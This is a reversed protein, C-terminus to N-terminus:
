AVAGLGLVQYVEVPEGSVKEALSGAPEARVMAEVNRYTRGSILIQGPQALSQLRAALNVSEGVVAYEMREDTGVTGAVVEGASLGIGVAVPDRGERVRRASLEAVGAQVALATRVARVSHDPHFIPAGFIAMVGDGLFRDLTGDHKFTTDIMLTYYENLLLVVEEPSLREALTTFGRLDCFLVTVDRREGKVVPREPDKLIEDVVERAVYRTFARKIMEKERLSRAMRNFSDTLLGIEDRTTVPVAVEFNGSAIARTGAALRLVPRSLLASLGTAGAIGVAAMVVSILIAQNRAQRLAEDIGRGSFGLYLAGLPVNSFALPVAFDILRGRQDDVYTQVRLEGEAQRLGPPRLIPQGILGLDAHAVIRGGPDTLIVYAVDPDRMTNQVLLSLALDDNSLLPNRASAALSRAMGLGRQTMEATLDHQQRQLLYASVLTIALGLFATVVLSLKV